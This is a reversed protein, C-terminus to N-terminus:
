YPEGDPPLVNPSKRYFSSDMHFVFHSMISELISGGMVALAAFNNAMKVVQQWNMFSPLIVEFSVLNSM